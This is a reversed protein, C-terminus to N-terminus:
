GLSVSAKTGVPCVTLFIAPSYELPSIRQATRRVKGGNPIPPSPMMSSGATLVAQWPGSLDHLVALDNLFPQRLNPWLCDQGKLGFHFDTLHLWSFSNTSMRHVTAIFQLVNYWSIQFNNRADSPSLGKDAASHDQPTTSVPILGSSDAIRM